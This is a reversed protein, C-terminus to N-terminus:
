RAAGPANPFVLTVTTGEGPVSRLEVTGKHLEVISKVLSLGLGTGALNRSSDVRYFRDFVRSVHEPPIGPGTDSVTIKTEHDLRAISLHITGGEPTFRLANDLLNGLARSFLVADAYVNGQGKCEILVNREQAITRYFGAIKELAARGDFETHQIQERASEARALFLLNDVIRSLRESEAVTSEVVERYEDSTRQRTLAVQAEGLINSIPTRLEHALDASFQSLRTFSEELRGLMQDFANALPQLERPWGVPAVRESLQTPGIRRFSRSIQDLPRLGRKITTRAIVISALISLALTTLFLLTVQRNFKEDTSRNQAVQLVYHDGQFQVPVAVLSFLEGGVRYSTRNSALRTNTEPPPFVSPPLAGSLGSSETLLHGRSDLVRVLYFPREGARAPQQESEPIRAPGSQKVNEVLATLKDALAANDEEFTHRVVLWYFVGLSCAVLFAAALTFLLVLRSGISRTEPPRSFM